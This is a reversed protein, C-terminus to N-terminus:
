DVKPYRSSISTSFKWHHVGLLLFSDMPETDKLQVCPRSFKSLVADSELQLLLRKLNEAHKNFARTLDDGPFINLLPQPRPVGVNIEIIRDVTGDTLQSLCEAIVSLAGPKNLRERTAAVPEYRRNIM